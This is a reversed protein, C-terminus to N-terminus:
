EKNEAPDQGSIQSAEPSGDTQPDVLADVDAALAAILEPKNGPAEPRIYTDGDPDRDANRRAIEDNLQAVTMSALPSAPELDVKYKPPRPTGDAYTAPSDVKRWADPSADFRAKPISVHHGTEKDAVRVFEDM